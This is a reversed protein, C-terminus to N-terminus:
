QRTGRPQCEELARVLEQIQVPKSIYDDMGAALCTERDGSMANATLAILRPRELAAWEQCIRRSAELGDMEPMHIDMLIADYNQRHLAQLVELGNAAIDIRYGLRELQRTIVQQNITNDEALLLRLPHQRGMDANYHTEGNRRGRQTAQRGTLVSILVDFLLSPKIPKSISQAFLGYAEDPQNYGLPTVIILPLAQFGPQRHISRALSMGDMDPIHMDILALDLKKGEANWEKLLDLVETGSSAVHPIMKWSEIHRKMINRNTESSDVILVQRGELQLKDVDISATRRDNM